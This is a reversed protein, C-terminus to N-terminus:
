NKDPCVDLNFYKGLHNYYANINQLWGNFYQHLSSTFPIMTLRHATRSPLSPPMSTWTTRALAAPRGGHLPRPVWGNYNGVALFVNNGADNLTQAFYKAGTRINFDPDRCNGGPAGGCKEKTIQMLGQEGGGGVTGPNCSSEQMAFAALMIPQLGFEGAYKYFLGTFDKCATFPSNPDKLADNLDVVKLDQVTVHPPNWGGGCNMWDLSGNPGTTGTTKTTAGSNGCHNDSVKITGVQAQNNQAKAPTSKAPSATTTKKAAAEVTKKPTTSTHTSTTKVASISKTHANCSKRKKLKPSELPTKPISVRQHHRAVAHAGHAINAQVALVVSLLVVPLAVLM